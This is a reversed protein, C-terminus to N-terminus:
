INQKLKKDKHAFNLVLYKVLAKKSLFSKFVFIPTYEKESEKLKQAKTLKRYEEKSKKISSNLIIMLWVIMGVPTVIITMITIFLFNEVIMVGKEKKGIIINNYCM